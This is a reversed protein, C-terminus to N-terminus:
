LLFFTATSSTISKMQNISEDDVFTNPKIMQHANSSNRKMLLQMQM